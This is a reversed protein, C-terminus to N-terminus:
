GFLGGPILWQLAVFLFMYAILAIIANIIRSKAAGVRNPDGASASYEIGAFIIVAVVVIGVVASLINIIWKAMIVIYNNNICAGGNCRQQVRRSPSELTGEGAITGQGGGDGDGARDGDGTPTTANTRANVCFQNSFPAEVISPGLGLIYCHDNQLTHGISLFSAAIEYATPGGNTTCANQRVTPPSGGSVTYCRPPAAAAPKAGFVALFVM